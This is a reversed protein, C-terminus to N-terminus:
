HSVAAGREFSGGLALHLNVRQTLQDCRVRLLQVQAQYLILREQEVSRLDRKGVEYAAQALRLATSQAAVLERLHGERETLTQAAALATEVDAVARLAMQVYQAVAEQQQATVIAVQAALTGNIDIPMLLKAGAGGTPNEFDKKLAVVDSDLYGLNATLRIGPLAAAKAQGVRNFAAAVRREAAILDPRRELMQLPLGAPVPGPVPPLDTRATLEAAPYRGLLTELARLASQHALRAQALRDRQDSLGASAQAVEQDNAIGVSRRTVVMRLLHESVGVMRDATQAELRTQAATFWAKATTAALSQRSFELESQAAVLSASAAASGYRLAGWLDLEWSMLAMLGSLASSMDSMKIGGTGLLSLSPRQAGRALALQGAAQDVRAAAARLDPNHALAEAVLADLQVDGFTSLWNDQVAETPLEGSRWPSALGLHGVSQQRFAQPSPPTRMACGAVLSAAAALGLLCASWANAPHRSM